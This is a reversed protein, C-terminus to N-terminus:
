RDFELHLPLWASVRRVQTHCPGIAALSEDFGLPLRKFTLEALKEVTPQTSCNSRQVQREVEDWPGQDAVLAGQARGLEAGHRPPLGWRASDIRENRPDCVLGVGRDAIGFLGAVWKAVDAVGDPAAEQGDSGREVQRGYLGKRENVSMIVNVNVM